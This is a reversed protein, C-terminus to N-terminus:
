DRTFDPKSSRVVTVIKILVAGSFYSKKPARIPAASLDRSPSNGRLRRRGEELM